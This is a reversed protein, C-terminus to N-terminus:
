SFRNEEIHLLKKGKSVNTNGTVWFRWPRFRAEGTNEIGIRPGCSIKEPMYGSAIYLPRETFKRGYDKMTIGLAETLKGPGNMWESRKRGARREDILDLGEVPDLARILIAEPVDAAGSVVNILTHRHMTFTYVRGPEAFMVETRRTRRNGFSHAARDGAGMYAETEVIYGAAVGEATENVLLCGLLLKALDLTPRHYFEIPLPLHSLEM